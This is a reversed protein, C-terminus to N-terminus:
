RLEKNIDNLLKVSHETNEIYNMAMFFTNAFIKHNEKITNIIINITAEVGFVNAMVMIHNVILRTKLENKNAYRVFLRSVSRARNLDRYFEEVSICSPNNYHEKAYDEINDM